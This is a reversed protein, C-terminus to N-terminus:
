TGCLASLIVARSSVVDDMERNDGMSNAETEALHIFVRNGTSKNYIQLYNGSIDSSKCTLDDTLNEGSSNSGLLENSNVVEKETDYYDGPLTLSIRNGASQNTKEEHWKITDEQDLICMEPEKAWINTEESCPVDNRNSKLPYLAGISMFASSSLHDSVNQTLFVGIVSDVVSGKWPSFRRDGQVLHM